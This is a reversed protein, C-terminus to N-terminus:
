RRLGLADQRENYRKITEGRLAQGKGVQILTESAMMLFATKLLPDGTFYAGAALGFSLIGFARMKVKVGFSNLDLGDDTLEQATYAPRWFRRESQSVDNFLFHWTRPHTIKM